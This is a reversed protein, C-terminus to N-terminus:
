RAAELAKQAQEVVHEVTFGFQAFLVNAPASAGFHDLCVLQGADGVVRHWGFSSGAEVGVRAKCQAPLVSERYAEDQAFFLEMCPMSVVRVRKGQERLVDAAQMCLEVESGTGILIVEPVGECDSLVYAGKTAQMGSQEYLPLNQRSLALLTPGDNQLAFVYAAATEHADAPRFTHCNPMARFSALHEVPEHTPGDEGVGISDHTLVYIVPLHMLASLRVAHRLYDSFVFFTACYPRVGGHLAMGNSIAAMAFERIGFHINRGERCTPSFYAEGELLSKNSPALDASGGILSPLMDKLQNLVVGSANRSAGPKGAAMLAEVDVTEPMGNQHAAEWAAYLEPFAKQYNHMMAEWSQHADRGSQSRLRCTEYVEQPVAFPESLPWDVAKRLAAVNAEGLPEGHSKESGEIPTFRAIKTDVIILTPADASRKATAIAASIAVTDDGDIGDIVQWGYARYRAAVDEAFTVATDGEISIRNRDYLVILKNLKLTGALSSAEGSIGEQLCGDGCLAYTYHDVVPYGPRNFKAALHAEAMAMGVAMAIGQGLPGTTAEVGVTHGYEPHGPTKSGWQRFQKLDEISLNGYGFLHLLSYLLMSGHGASLVFRDRNQWQPCDPDHLMQESFLTYAMPAAGLVMGPHGSKSKQISDAALIRIANICLNDQRNM